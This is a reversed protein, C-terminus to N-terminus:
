PRGRLATVSDVIDRVAQNLDFRGYFGFAKEFDAAEYGLEVRPEMRHFLDPALVVYGEEAYLDAVDRMHRNVGFIEQLVVIGPGSGSAPVALYGTMGGGIDIWQGAM